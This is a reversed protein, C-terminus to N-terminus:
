KEFLKWRKYMFPIFFIYTLSGSILMVIKDHTLSHLPSNKECGYYCMIKYIILTSLAILLFNIIQKKLYFIYNM